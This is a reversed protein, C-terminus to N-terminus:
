PLDQDEWPHVGGCDDDCEEDEGHTAECTPRVFPELLARRSVCNDLPCDGFSIRSEDAGQHWTPHHRDHVFEAATRLASQLEGIADEAAQLDDVIDLSM